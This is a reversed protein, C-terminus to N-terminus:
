ILSSIFALFSSTFESLTLLNSFSDQFEKGKRLHDNKALRQETQSMFDHFGFLVCPHSLTKYFTSAVCLQATGVSCNGQM